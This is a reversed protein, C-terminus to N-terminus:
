SDLNTADEDEGPEFPPPPAQFQYRPSLPPPLPMLPTSLTAHLRILMQFRPLLTSLANSM